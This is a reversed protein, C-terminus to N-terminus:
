FSENNSSNVIEIGKCDWGDGLIGIDDFCAFELSIKVIKGINPIQIKFSDKQGKQFPLNNATNIDLPRM